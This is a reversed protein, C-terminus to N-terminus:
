GTHGTIGIDIRGASDSSVESVIFTGQLNAPPWDIFIAQGIRVNRFEPDAVTFTAATDEWAEDALYGEAFDELESERQIQKDVLPEQRRSVGYFEVSSSSQYERQLSGAGQAVVSNTINTANRDTDLDVVRTFGHVIEVPANTDGATEFRLTDSEDIFSTAGEEVTLSQIFELISGDVRRVISRGTEEVGSVDVGLDRESHGFVRARAYDILGARPESLYGDIDIRYQLTGDTTLQGDPDAEEPKLRFTEFEPREPVEPNWVYNNGGHDRLEVEVSFYGGVNNFMLRTDFWLLNADGAATEPVGSYTVRYTGGANEAWHLYLLDWGREELSQGPLDALEFTPVSSDFGSTSSGNFITTPNRPETEFEIAERIATGSDRDYFPRHVEEYQLAERKDRATLEIKLERTGASPKGELYGTWDTEGDREVVVEEGYGYDRNEQTNTVQIEATGLEEADAGSTNVDILGSVEEGGIYVRLSM